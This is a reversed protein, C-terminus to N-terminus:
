ASPPASNHNRRLGADVEHRREAYEKVRMPVNTGPRLIPIEYQGRKVTAIGKEWVPQQMPRIPQPRDRVREPTANTSLRLGGGQQWYRVKCCWHGCVDPDDGCQEDHYRTSDCGM